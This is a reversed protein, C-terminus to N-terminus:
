LRFHLTNNKRNDPNFAWSMGDLAFVKILPPENLCTEERNSEAKDFFTGGLGCM